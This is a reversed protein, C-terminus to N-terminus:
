GLDAIQHAEIADTVHRFYELASVPGFERSALEFAAIFAATKVDAPTLGERRGIETMAEVMIKAMENTSCNDTM